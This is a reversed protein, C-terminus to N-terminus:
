NSASCGQGILGMSDQDDRTDSDMISYDSDWCRFDPIECDSVHVVSNVEVAGISWSGGKVEGAVEGADQVTPSTNPTNMGKFGYPRWRFMYRCVHPCATRLSWSFSHMGLLFLSSPRTSLCSSFWFSKHLQTPSQAPM